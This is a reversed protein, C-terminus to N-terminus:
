SRRMWQKLPELTAAWTFHDIIWQRAGISAVPEALVELCHTTFEAAVDTQRLWSSQPANIGEMAMATAVVVKNMAMAELVKNQIGRAIRLPAVVLLAHQIYPRVDEVRGTVVIGPLKALDKVEPSPNGGVIMFHLKPHQLL